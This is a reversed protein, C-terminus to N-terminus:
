PRSALFWFVLVVKLIYYPTCKIYFTTTNKRNEWRYGSKWFFLGSWFDSKQFFFWGQAMFGIIIHLKKPSTYLLSGYRFAPICKMGNIDLRWPQIYPDLQSLKLSFTFGHGKQVKLNVKPLNEKQPSYLLNISVNKNFGIKQLRIKYGYTYSPSRLPLFIRVPPPM